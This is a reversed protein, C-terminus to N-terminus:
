QASTGTWLRALGTARPLLWRASPGATWRGRAVQILDLGVLVPELRYLEGRVADATLGEGESTVWREGLLAFLRVALEQAACSGDAVVSALADGVLISTFGDDPGFWSRLRRITELEDGAVRTPALTGKRLRLLGVQRLVEHLAVLPWLDEEISAAGGLPHWEPHREQVDRVLVRPLRGGPTLKVGGTTLSLLLGVPEPVAGVMQRVVRDTEALDFEDSWNGAWEGLRQHEPHGPNALAERFEAYGYPGGVDEPPCAGEGYVCGPAQGGAGLVEVEHEWGDGFDYLYRFRASLERLKAGREDRDDDEVWDLDPMGYSIGDAEFRHLHSDTWGLAGQLLDHLEALTLASPVDLVRWVAPEVGRMTVRLRTTRM